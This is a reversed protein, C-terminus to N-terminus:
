KIGYIRKTARYSELTEILANRIVQKNGIIICLVFYIPILPINAWFKIYRM